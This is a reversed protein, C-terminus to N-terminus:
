CFEQVMRKEM